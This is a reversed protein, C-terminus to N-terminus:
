FLQIDQLRLTPEDVEMYSALKTLSITSYVKLFTRVGSLLQQQKAEYLFLKLQLRYADQCFLYCKTIWLKVQFFPSHLPAFLIDLCNNRVLQAVRGSWHLGKIFGYVYFAWPTFLLRLDVNHFHIGINFLFFWIRSQFILYYFVSVCVCVCVVMCVCFGVCM